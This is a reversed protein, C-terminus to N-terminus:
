VQLYLKGQFFQFFLIINFFDFDYNEIIHIFFFFFILHWTWPRCTAIYWQVLNWTDQLVDYKPPLNEWLFYPAVNKFFLFMRIKNMFDNYVLTLNVWVTSKTVKISSIRLQVGWRKRLSLFMLLYSKSALNCIIVKLMIM